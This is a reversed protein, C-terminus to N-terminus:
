ANSRDPRNESSFDNNKREQELKGRTSSGLWESTSFGQKEALADLESVRRSLISPYFLVCSDSDVDVGGWESGMGRLYVEMKCSM